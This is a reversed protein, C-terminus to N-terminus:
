VEGGLSLPLLLAGSVAGSDLLRPMSRGVESGDAIVCTAHTTAVWSVGPPRESGPLLYSVRGHGEFMYVAILEDRGRDRALHHVHVEDAGPVCLLEGALARFITESERAGDAVLALRRVGALVSEYASSPGEAEKGMPTEM